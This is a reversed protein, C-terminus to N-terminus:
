RNIMHIVQKFGSFDPYRTYLYSVTALRGSAGRGGLHPESWRSRRRSGTLGDFVATISSFDCRELFRAASSVRRPNV